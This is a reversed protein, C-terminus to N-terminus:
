QVAKRSVTVEIHGAVGRRHPFTQPVGDVVWVTGDADTLKDHRQVDTDAAFFCQQVDREVPGVALMDASVKLGAFFCPVDEAVTAPSSLIMDDDTGTADVQRTITVTNTLMRSFRLEVDTM